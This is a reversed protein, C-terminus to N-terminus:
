KTDIEELMEYTSNTLDAFRQFDDSILEETLYKELEEYSTSKL